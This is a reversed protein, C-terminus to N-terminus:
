PFLTEKVVVVEASDAGSCSGLAELAGRLFSKREFVSVAARSDWSDFVFIAVAGLRPSKREFVAIRLSLESALVMGSSGVGLFTDVRRSISLPDKPELERLADLEVVDRERM